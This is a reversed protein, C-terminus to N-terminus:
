NTLENMYNEIKEKVLSISHNLDEQLYTYELYLPIEELQKLKEQIKKDLVQVDNGKAEEKVLQQQLKKISEIKELVEKNEKMKNSIEIYRIYEESNQIMSVIEDIKELVKDKM